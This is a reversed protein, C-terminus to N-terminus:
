LAVNAALPPCVGYVHDTDLPEKGVPNPKDEEPTMEPVGVNAPDNGKLTWTRSLAALVADLASLMLMPGASGVKAVSQVSYAEAEPFSLEAPVLM